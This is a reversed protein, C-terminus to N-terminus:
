LLYKRLPRPRRYLGRDAGAATAVRSEEGAGAESQQVDDQALIRREGPHQPLAEGQARRGGAGSQGATALVRARQAVGFMNKRGAGARVGIGARGPANMPQPATEGRAGCPEVLLVQAPRRIQELQRSVEIKLRQGRRQPTEGLAQFIRQRRRRAGTRRRHSHQVARRARFGLNQRQPQAIQHQRLLETPLRGDGQQRRRDRPRRQPRCPM